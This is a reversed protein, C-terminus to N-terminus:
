ACVYADEVFKGATHSGFVVQRGGVVIQDM